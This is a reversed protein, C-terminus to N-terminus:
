QKILSGAGLDKLERLENQRAQALVIAGPRSREKAPPTPQALVSGTALVAARGATRLLVPTDM